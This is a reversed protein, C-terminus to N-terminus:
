ASEGGEETQTDTVTETVEYNKTRVHENAWNEPIPLEGLKKRIGNVSYVGAAILKDIAEAQGFADRYILRTMDIRVGSGNQRAQKSYRKTNIEAELLKLLPAVCLTVTENLAAFNDGNEGKLLQPNIHYVTAVRAIAEDTLQKINTVENVTSGKEPTSTETYTLSRPLVALGNMSNFYSDFSKKLKEAQAQADEQKGTRTMDASIIGKRGGSTTYKKLAAGMIESYGAEVSSLLGIIGPDRVRVFLADEIRTDPLSFLTGNIDEYQIETFLKRQSDFSFTQAVYLEGGYPAILVEGATLAKYLIHKKFEAGSEFRNPAFNWLDYEDRKQEEGKYITQFEANAALSSILDAAASIEFSYINVVDLESKLATDTLEIVAKKYILNGLLDFIKM